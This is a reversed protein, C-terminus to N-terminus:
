IACILFTNGEENQYNMQLQDQNNLMKTKKVIMYNNNTYSVNYKTCIIKKKIILLKKYTIRSLIQTHM